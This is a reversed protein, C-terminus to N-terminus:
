QRLDPDHVTFEIIPLIFVGSIRDAWRGTEFHGLSAFGFWNTVLAM